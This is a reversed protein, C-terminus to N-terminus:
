KGGEEGASAPKATDTDTVAYLLAARIVDALQFAGYQRSYDNSNLSTSMSPKHSPAYKELAAEIATRLRDREAELERVRNALLGVAIRAASGNEPSNYRDLDDVSELATSILSNADM